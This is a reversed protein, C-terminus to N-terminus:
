GQVLGLSISIHELLQKPHVPKGLLPFNYGAAKAAVLDVATAHGSFLLVQCEPQERTMELALEVGNMGPMQVDTLLLAPPTQRATALAQEAGYAKVACFGAQDLILALTDAVIREDDVVLVVPLESNETSIGEVESLPVVETKLHRGM